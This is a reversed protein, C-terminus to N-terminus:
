NSIMFCVLPHFRICGGSSDRSGEAKDGRDEPGARVRPLIAATCELGFNRPLMELFQLQVNPVLDSHRGAIQPYEM